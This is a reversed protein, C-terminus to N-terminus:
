RCYQLTHKRGMQIIHQTILNEFDRREQVDLAALLGDWMLASLLGIFKLRARRRLFAIIIPYTAFILIKFLTSFRSANVM